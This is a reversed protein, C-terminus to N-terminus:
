NLNLKAVYIKHVKLIHLGTREFQKQRDKFAQLHSDVQLMQFQKTTNTKDLHGESLQDTDAQGPFLYSLLVTLYPLLQLLPLTSPELVAKPLKTFFM